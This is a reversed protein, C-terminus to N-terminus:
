LCEPIVAPENLGRLRYRAVDIANLARTLSDRQEDPLDGWTLVDGLQMYAQDAQTTISGIRRLTNQRNYM